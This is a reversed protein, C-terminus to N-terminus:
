YGKFAETILKATNEITNYVILPCPDECYSSKGTLEAVADIYMSHAGEKINYSWHSAGLEEIAKQYKNAFATDIGINWHDKVAAIVDDDTVGARSSRCATYLKGRGTTKLGLLTIPIGYDTAAIIVDKLMEADETEPIYQVTVMDELEYKHMARILTRVGGVSDVSYAFAGCCKKFTQLNWANDLWRLNRTSFNPKIGLRHAHVVFQWFDPHETPEGGGFAVEFVELKALVDLITTVLDRAAHEGNPKSNQYCYSCGNPCRDTIKLDVLEPNTSKSMDVNDDFSMRIKTGDEPNFLTYFGKADKRCNFYGSKPIRFDVPKGPLEECGDGDDNGGQIAIEPRMLWKFYDMFYQKSIQEGKFTRPLTIVSHHDIYDDEGPVLGVWQRLVAEQIDKGLYRTNEQLMMAAYMKKAESTAAIFPQWGFEYGESLLYDVPKKDTRIFPTHVSSSNTAFAQFRVSDIKM